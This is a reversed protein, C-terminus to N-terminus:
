NSNMDLQLQGRDWHRHVLYIFGLGFACLLAMVLYSYAGAWAYLPGAALFMGGIFIGSGVTHLLAQATAALRNPIARTIFHVAGLHTAAFTLAHATQLVFLAILPPDFATGAWRVIGAVAGILMLGRAGINKILAASFAFLVVEAIVGVAWLWGTLTASMGLGRWHIVSFVYYIGHSSQILGYALIMFMFVPVRILRAAELLHRKLAQAFDQELRPTAPLYFSLALTLVLAGIAWVLIMSIGYATIAAGCAINGFIFSVSGWLRVRGYNVHTEEPGSLAIADSLPVIAGFAISMLAVAAFVPWFHDVFPLTLVAGLSLAMLGIVLLRRDGIADASVGLVFIIPMRLFFPTGIILGIEVVSFGRAELWSPFYPMFVGIFLFSAAYFLAMRFSHSTLLPHM